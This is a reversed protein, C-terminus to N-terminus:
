EITPDGDRFYACFIDADSFNHAFDAGSSLSEIQSEPSLKDM